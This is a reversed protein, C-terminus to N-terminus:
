EAAVDSKTPLKADPTVPISIILGAFKRSTSTSGFGAHCSLCGGHLSISGARRYYGDEITEYSPEGKALQRAALKEFETKPDHNLSMAKLSASIWRSQIHRSEEVTAFVDEMARAPVVARDGHFYRQHMADLTATYIDHMLEARIQAAELSLRPVEVAQEKDATGTKGSTQTARELTSPTTTSPAPTTSAPPASDDALLLGVSLCGLLCLSAAISLKRQTM